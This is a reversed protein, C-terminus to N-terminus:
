DSGLMEKLRGAIVETTPLGGQYLRCGMEPSKPVPMGFIDRGGLLATPTPYGRRLDDDALSEQDIYLLEFGGVAQAAAEVREVFLPTNPCGEFGLVEILMADSEAHDPQESCGPILTSLLIALTLPICCKM